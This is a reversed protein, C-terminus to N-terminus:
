KLVRRRSRGHGDILDISAGHVHVHVNVDGPWAYLSRVSVSVGGSIGLCWGHM